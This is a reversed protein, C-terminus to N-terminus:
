RDPDFSLRSEGGITLNHTAVRRGIKQLSLVLAMQAAAEQNTFGGPKMSAAAIVGVPLTLWPYADEQELRITVAAYESWRGSNSAGITPRGLCFARVAEYPSEFDDLESTRTVSVDSFAGVSTAWLRLGRVRRYQALEETLSEPTWRLWVELKVPNEDDNPGVLGHV